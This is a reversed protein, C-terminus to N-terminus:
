LFVLHMECGSFRHSVKIIEDLATVNIALDICLAQISVVGVRVGLKDV